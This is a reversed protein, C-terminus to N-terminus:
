HHGSPSCSRFVRGIPQVCEARFVLVRSFGRGDIQWGYCGPVPVIVESPWSNGSFRLQPTKIGGGQFLMPHTGGVQGGRILVPGHYRQSVM